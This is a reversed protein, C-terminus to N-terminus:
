VERVRDSPRPDRARDTLPYCEIVKPYREGPTSVSRRLRAVPMETARYSHALQAMPDWPVPIPAKSNIGPHCLPEYFPRTYWRTVKPDM